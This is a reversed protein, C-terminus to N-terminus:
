SIFLDVLKLGSVKLIINTNCNQIITIIKNNLTYNLM